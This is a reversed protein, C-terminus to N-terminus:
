HLRKISLKIQGSNDRHDRDLIFFYVKKGAEAEIKVQFRESPCNLTGMLITGTKSNVAFDAPFTDGTFSWVFVTPVPKYLPYKHYFIGGGQHEVAYIGKGLTYVLGYRKVNECSIDPSAHLVGDVVLTVPKNEVGLLTRASFTVVVLAIILFIHRIIEM